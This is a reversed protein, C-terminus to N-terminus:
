MEDNPEHERKCNIKEVAKDLKFVIFLEIMNAKLSLRKCPKWKLKFSINNKIFFECFDVPDKSNLTNSDHMFEILLEMDKKKLPNGFKYVFCDTSIEKINTYEETAINFRLKTIFNEHNVMKIM